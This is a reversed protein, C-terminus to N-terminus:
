SERQKEHQNKRYWSVTRSLGEALDITPNWGLQKLKSMDPCRRHPSGKPSPGGFVPFAHVGCARGVEYVLQEIKIEEPNGINYVQRNDGKDLVTLMGSVFDDVYCFSRTEQGDGQIAVDGTFAVEIGNLKPRNIIQQILSPIVHDNGAGGSYINHPRVICMRKLFQGCHVALLEAAIKGGGYSYRPNWLNPVVLVVDEPTPITLADQYVESSSVFVMEPIDYQKCWDLVNLMGRVSVELVDGPREYFNKTGNIAAMHIVCDTPYQFAWEARSTTVNAEWIDCAVGWLRGKDGRSFDDMVRVRDGRAVLAKVVASGLYGSGGTILYTKM